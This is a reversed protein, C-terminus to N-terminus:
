RTSKQVNSVSTPDTSEILDILEQKSHVGTKQYINYIHAKATHSTVNLENQIHLTDRGKALMLLVEAQRSSLQYQRIVAYCRKKWLGARHGNEDEAIDDDFVTGELHQTHDHQEDVLPYHDEMIFSSTFIFLTLMLLLVITSSIDGFPRIQYALLYAIFGIALGVANDIRGFGFVRVASLRYIRIHESLAALNVVCYITFFCFLFTCCIACAMEDITGSFFLPFIGVAIFPLLFRDLNGETLRGFRKSLAITLLCGVIGASAALSLFLESPQKFVLYAAAFGFGINYAIVSFISNRKIVCRADSTKADVYSYRNVGNQKAQIYMFLGVSVAPLLVAAVISIVTPLFILLLFFVAAALICLAIFRLIDKKGVTCFFRSWLLVLASQAFGLAVRAVMTLAVPQEPILTLVLSAATGSLLAVGVLFVTGKKSSFADSACWAIFLFLAAGLATVVPPMFRLLSGADLSGFTVSSGYVIYVWAFCIAIGIAGFTLYPSVSWTKEPTEAMTDTRDQSDM